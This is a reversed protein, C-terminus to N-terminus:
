GTIETVMTTAFVIPGQWEDTNRILNLRSIYEIDDLSFPLCYRIARTSRDRAAQLRQAPPSSHTQKQNEVNWSSAAASSQAHHFCFSSGGLKNNEKTSPIFLLLTSSQPYKPFSHRFNHPIVSTYGRLQLLTCHPSYQLYGCLSPFCPPAPSLHAVSVVLPCVRKM